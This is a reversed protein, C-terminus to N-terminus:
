YGYKVADLWITLIYVLFSILVGMRLHPKILCDVSTEASGVEVCTLMFGLTLVTWFAYLNYASRVFDQKNLIAALITIWAAMFIGPTM